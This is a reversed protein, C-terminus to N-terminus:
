TLQSQLSTSESDKFLPFNFTILNSTCHRRSKEKKWKAQRCKECQPESVKVETTGEFVVCGLEVAVKLFLQVGTSEFVHHALPINGEPLTLIFSSGVTNSLWSLDTSTFSSEDIYKMFTVVAPIKLLQILPCQSLMEYSLLESSIMWFKCIVALDTMSSGWLPSSHFHLIVCIYMESM